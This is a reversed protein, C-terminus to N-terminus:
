FLAWTTVRLAEEATSNVIIRRFRKLHTEVVLVDTAHPNIFGRPNKLYIFDWGNNTLFSGSLLVGPLYAGPLRLEVKQWSQFCAHYQADIIDERRVTVGQHLAFLKEAGELEIRLTTESLILKM